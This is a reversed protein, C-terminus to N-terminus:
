SKKMRAGENLLKIIQLSDSPVGKPCAETARLYFPLVSRLFCLLNSCFFGALLVELWIFLACESIIVPVIIVTLLSLIPGALLISVKRTLCLRHEQFSVYGILPSKFSIHFECRGIINKYFPREGVNISVPGHTFFLTPILHGIEHILTALSRSAYMSVWALVLWPVGELSFYNIYDGLIYMNDFSRSYM